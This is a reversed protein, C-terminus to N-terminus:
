SRKPSVKVIMCSFCIAYVFGVCFRRIGCVTDNVHVLYAFVLVYMCLVGLLLMYGLVTTGGKFPYFIALYIFSSITCVIGVSTVAAVVIGWTQRFYENRDVGDLDGELSRGSVPTGSGSLTGNILMHNHCFCTLTPCRSVPLTMREIGYEDYTKFATSNLTLTRQTVNWSGLKYQTYSNVSKDYHVNNIDFGLSGSGDTLFNFQMSNVLRSERLSNYILNGRDQKSILCDSLDKAGQCEQINNTAQVIMYTALITQYVGAPDGDAELLDITLRDDARCPRTFNQQPISSNELRCRLTQQWFEDFWDDPIDGHNAVTLTTLYTKFDEIITSEPKSHARLVLAGQTVDQMDVPLDSVPDVRDSIIWEFREEKNAAKVAKFLERTDAPNTFLVVVRSGAVKDLSKVIETPRVMVFAKAVCMTARKDYIDNVKELFMEFAKHGLVDDSYVVSVYGLNLYSLITAVALAQQEVSSTMSIRHSQEGVLASGPGVNITTM